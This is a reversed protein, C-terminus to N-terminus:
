GEVLKTFRNVDADTGAVVLDDGRRVRFEPGVDSIFQDDREVAVVTVGTRARVDAGALTKGALAGCDMRVLDVQQDFSIVDEELITSALM